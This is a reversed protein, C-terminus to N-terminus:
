ELSRILEETINLIYLNEINRVKLFDDKLMKFFDQKEDIYILFLELVSAIFIHPFHNINEFFWKIPKILLTEERQLLYNIASLVEKQVFADMNKSKVFMMVIAIEDDSMNNLDKDEISKWNFNSDGPLRYEIAEFGRKYMSLIQEKKLEAHEFAIILNATSQSYYYITKFKEFLEQSLYSLAQKEDLKVADKLADKSIFNELWGGQSFIFIKVFFYVKLADSCRIHKVLVRLKEYYEKHGVFRRTIIPELINKILKDDNKENFYHLLFNLDKDLLDRDQKDFYKNIEEISKEKLSETIGYQITLKEELKKEGYIYPTAKEKESKQIPISVNLINKLVQLNKLSKYSLQERDSNLDRELINVLSQRAVKKDKDITKYVIDIFSSVYNSAIDDDRIFTPLLRYLYNLTILNIEKSNKLFASFMFEYKWLYTDELFRNILFITAKRKDVKLFNQFWYIYLWRIGKGDESHIQVSLNLPLLKKTYTLAFQNDLKNIAMLPGQIEDLTIDKRFTYSTVLKMAQLLNKRAKKRKKIKGYYISKKLKYELYFSYYENEANDFNEYSSIIFEINFYNIFNKEIISITNYPILNLYDIVESWSEKSQIYKLGQEISKNIIHENKYTFDILRPTGKYQDIDTSLFEFNKIFSKEVTEYNSFSGQSIKEEIIFNRILFKLWNYFFNDSPITKEFKELASLNYQSYQEVLYYFNDLIGERIYDDIFDLNLPPLCIHEIQNKVLIRQTCNTNDLIDNIDKAIIEKFKSAYKEYLFLVKTFGELYYVEEVLIKLYKLNEFILARNVKINKDLKNFSILYAIFYRFKDLSIEDKFYHEIKKWNPTYGNRQSIYFAKVIIETTFNAKGDFFLIENAQEFGYTHGIAEFYDEFREEFENIQNGSLTANITRNLESIYIFLEWDQSEKAVYLFNDYNLKIINESYGHYLSETLFDNTAYKKVKNYKELKIYYDLLYRYAKHNKYFGEKKLWKAILKYINQLGNDNELKEINYRRFSDHYLKIGGRSFNENLVPSIIKLDKELHHSQPNIKELENTTVSFELCSLIESTLNDDIKSTLYRYYNELNFDYQPLNNITEITIEQNILTKVIYTLYLPNGESKEYLHKSLSENEIMTDELSYKSMLELTDNIDWKPLTYVIYEFDNILTKIEEVPQSGLVIYVNTPAVIQSIYEIIKTKDESLTFSYKLVRSIHDLGDIIIILEEDIYSLLLNLEDLNSVFLKDKLEKLQPFEKLIDFVLNGFFVDSSIRKEIDKDETDTFCYHRIVKKSNVKLYEIFNTLFWSKGSGPEGILLTRKNKIIETKLSNYKDNFQINKSQDIEFKQEIKGFDTKVRLDQLIKAGDVVASRTRYEGVKKALRELFDSIYVDDNPYQSIGLKEAQQYLINELDSPANFKLSAKPLELEIILSDCFLKFDDRDISNDIVFKKLSRWAGLPESGDEWLNELKVRYLKTSFNEFSSLNADLPKLINKIDDDTPENWALCLRFESNPTNLEKWTRYLEYLALKYGSNNALDDKLLKKAVGDNSYKIQKRQTGKNNIIVLDDFSDPIDQHTNKKDISFTSTNNGVLVEKLIFYSTILDQYDYGEHANNLSM